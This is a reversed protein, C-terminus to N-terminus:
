KESTQDIQILHNIVKSLKWFLIQLNIDSCMHCKPSWINLTLKLYLDLPQIFPFLAPSFCNPFFGYVSKKLIQWLVHFDEHLPTSYLRFDSSVDSKFYELRNIGFIPFHLILRFVNLVYKLGLRFMDCLSQWSHKLELDQTNAWELVTESSKVEFAILDARALIESEILHRQCSIVSRDM